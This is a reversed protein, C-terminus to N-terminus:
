LGTITVEEIFKCLNELAFQIAQKRIKKRSGSFYKVVTDTGLIKHSWGFWVTGVPKDRTGGTPGAIGTIAISIEAQSFKLAGIAMASATEESVAGYQEIIEAPVGLLDIKAQNSYTVFGREFWASSGPIETIVFALGGGTCSEASTLKIQHKILSEGLTQSLQEISNKINQM